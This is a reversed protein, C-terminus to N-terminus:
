GDTLEHVISIQQVISLPGIYVAPNDKRVQLQLFQLIENTYRGETQRIWDQKERDSPNKFVPGIDDLSLGEFLIDM